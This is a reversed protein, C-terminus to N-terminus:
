VAQKIFRNFQQSKEASKPPVLPSEGQKQPVAQAEQWDSLRLVWPAPCNPLLLLSQTQDPVGPHLPCQLNIREAPCFRSLMHAVLHRALGANIRRFKLAVPIQSAELAPKDKPCRLCACHKFGVMNQFSGPFYKLKKYLRSFFPIYYEQIAAM